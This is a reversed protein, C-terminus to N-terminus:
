SRAHPKVVQDALELLLVWIRSSFCYNTTPYGGTAVRLDVEITGADKTRSSADRKLLRGMPSLVRVSRLDGIIVEIVLM